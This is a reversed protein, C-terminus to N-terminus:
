KNSYRQPKQLRQAWQDAAETGMYLYYDSAPKKYENKIFIELDELGLIRLLIAHDSWISEAHRGDTIYVVLSNNTIQASFNPDRDKQSAYWNCFYQERPTM